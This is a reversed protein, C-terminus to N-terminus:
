CPVRLNPDSPMEECHYTSVRLFTGGKEHTKQRAVRKPLVFVHYECFLQQQDHGFKSKMMMHEHIKFGM